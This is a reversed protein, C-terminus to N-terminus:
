NKTKADVFAPQLKKMLENKESRLDIFRYDLRTDLDANEDLPLAESQSLIEVETPLFEKGGDKVYECLVMKGKFSLISNALIGELKEVLDPQTQKEISVQIKGSRDKLIIFIMYKTDRIKTAWGSITSAEQEKLDKILTRM